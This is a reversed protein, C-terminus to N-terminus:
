GDAGCAAALAGEECRASGARGERLAAAMADQMAASLEASSIDPFRRLVEALFERETAGIAILQRFADVVATTDTHTPTNM